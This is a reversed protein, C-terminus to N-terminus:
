VVAAMALLGADDLKKMRSYDFGRLRSGDYDEMLELQGRNATVLRASASPAGALVSAAFVFGICLLAAAGASRMRPRVRSIATTAAVAIAAAAVWPITARLPATWNEDTFTPVMLALPSAGQVYEAVRAYGHPASFLLLREPVLAAACAIV